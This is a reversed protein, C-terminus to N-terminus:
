RSLTGQVFVRLKLAPNSEESVIDRIKTVATETITLM